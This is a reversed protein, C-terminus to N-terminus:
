AATRAVASARVPQLLFDPEDALSGGGGAAVVTGDAVGIALSLAVGVGDAEADGPVIPQL